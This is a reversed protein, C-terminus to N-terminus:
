VPKADVHLIIQTASQNIINKRTSGLHCIELVYNEMLQEQVLFVGESIPLIMDNHLEQVSM